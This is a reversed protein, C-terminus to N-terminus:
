WLSQDFWSIWPKSCIWCSTVNIKRSTMHLSTLFTSWWCMFYLHINDRFIYSTTQPLGKSKWQLLTWLLVPLLRKRRNSQLSVTVYLSPPPVQTFICLNKVELNNKILSLICFVNYTWHGNTWKFVLWLVLFILFYAFINMRKDVVGYEM